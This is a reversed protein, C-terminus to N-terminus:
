ECYSIPGHIWRFFHIPRMRDPLSTKGRECPDESIHTQNISICQRRKSVAFLPRRTLAYRTHQCRMRAIRIQHQASRLYSSHLFNSRSLRISTKAHNQNQQQDGGFPRHIDSLRLIRPNRKERDEPHQCLGKADPYGIGRCFSQKISVM